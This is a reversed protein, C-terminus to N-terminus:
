NIPSSNHFKCVEQVLSLNTHHQIIFPLNALCPNMSLMDGWIEAPPPVAELPANTLYQGLEELNFRGDDEFGCLFEFIHQLELQSM